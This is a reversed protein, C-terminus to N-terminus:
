EKPFEVRCLLATRDGPFFPPLATIEGANFQAAMRDEIADGANALAELRYGGVSADQANRLSYATMTLTHVLLKCQSADRQQRYAMAAADYRERAYSLLEPLPVQAILLAELEIRKRPTPKPLISREKAIATMHTVLLYAVAEAATTPRPLEPDALGSFYHWMYPWEKAAAFREAWLEYNHWRWGTGLLISTAAAEEARPDGGRNAAAWATFLADCRATDLEVSAMVQNFAQRLTDEAVAFQPGFSSTPADPAAATATVAASAAPAPAPNDGFLRSFFSM